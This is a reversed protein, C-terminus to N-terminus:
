FHHWKCNNENNKHKFLVNKISLCCLEKKGRSNPNVKLKSKGSVQCREMTDNSPHPHHISWYGNSFAVPPGKLLSLDAGMGSHVAKEITRPLFPLARFNELESTSRNETTVNM